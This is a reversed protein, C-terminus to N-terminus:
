STPPLTKTGVQDLLKKATALDMTTGAPRCVIATVREAVQPGQTAFQGIVCPRDTNQPRYSFTAYRGEGGGRSYRQENAHVALNKGAIWDVAEVVSRLTENKWSAGGDFYEYWFVGIHGKAAFTFRDEAPTATASGRVGRAEARLASQPKAGRLEPISIILASQEPEIKKWEQAGASSAILTAAAFLMFRLM